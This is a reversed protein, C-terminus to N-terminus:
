MFYLVPIISWLFNASSSHYWLLHQQLLLPITLNFLLRAFYFLVATAGKVKAEVKRDIKKLEDTNKMDIGIMHTM